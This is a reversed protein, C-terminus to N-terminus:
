GGSRAGAAGEGGAAPAAEATGTAAPAPLEFWFRAGGGAASEVGVRGGHAQALAKVVALGIGSGAAPAATVRAGRYFKEWVQTREGPPIGPGRDEVEVRVGPAAWAAGARVVIPGEPAYKLANEVLNTVMQAVRARDARVPLRPPLEWTLRAGARDHRLGSLLEDLVPALDVDAPEVTVGGREARGFDALDQVVRALHASSTRIATASRELAAGEPAGAAGPRPPTRAPVQMQLQLWEAYGQIVTLPTRLEHAVTALLEDKHRDLDRLAAEQTEHRALEEQQHALRRHAEVAARTREQLEITRRTSVYVAAAPVVM